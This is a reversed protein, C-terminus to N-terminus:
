LIWDGPGAGRRANVKFEPEKGGGANGQKAPRVLGDAMRSRGPRERAPIRDSTTTRWGLIERTAGSGRYMRAATVIGASRSAASMARKALRVLRGGLESLTPMRPETKPVQEVNVVRQLGGTRLTVWRHGSTDFAGTAENGGYGSRYSGAPAITQRTSRGGWWQSLARFRHM